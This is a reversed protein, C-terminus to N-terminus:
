KSRLYCNVLFAVTYCPLGVCNLLFVFQLINNWTQKHKIEMQRVEKKLQYLFFLMAAGFLLVPLVGIYYMGQLQPDKLLGQRWIVSVIEMATASLVAFVACLVTKQKM